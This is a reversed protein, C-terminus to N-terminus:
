KEILEFVDWNGIKSAEYIAAKKLSDTHDEPHYKEDLRGLGYAMALMNELTHGMIKYESRSKIKDQTMIKSTQNLCPKRRTEAM